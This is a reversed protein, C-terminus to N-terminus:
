RVPVEKPAFGLREEVWGEGGWVEGGDGASEAEIHWLAPPLSGLAAKFLQM